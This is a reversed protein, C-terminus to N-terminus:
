NRNWDGGLLKDSDIEKTWETLQKYFRNKQETGSAPTYISVLTLPTKNTIIKVTSVQGKAWEETPTTDRAMGVLENTMLIATGWKTPVQQTHLPHILPKNTKEQIPEDELQMNDNDEQVEKKKLFSQSLCNYFGKYGELTVYRGKTRDCKLEQLMIIDPQHKITWEHMEAKKIEWGGDINITIIKLIKNQEPTKESSPPEVPEAISTTNLM